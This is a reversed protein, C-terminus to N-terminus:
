WSKRCRCKRIYNRKAMSGLCPAVRVCVNESAAMSKVYSSVWHHLLDSLLVASLVVVGTNFADQPDTLPLQLTTRWYAEGIKWRLLESTDGYHLEVLRFM